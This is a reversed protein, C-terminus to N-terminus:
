AIFACLRRTLSPTQSIRRYLRHKLYLYYYNTEVFAFKLGHASNRLFSIVDNEQYKPLQSGNRINSTIKCILLLLM